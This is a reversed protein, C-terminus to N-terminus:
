ERLLSLRDALYADLPRPPNGPSWEIMIVGDHETLPGTGLTLPSADLNITEGEAFGGRVAARRLERRAEAEESKNAVGRLPEIARTVTGTSYLTGDSGVLLVGLRWARGRPVLKAPLFRRLKMTALSEQPADLERLTEITRAILGALDDAATM